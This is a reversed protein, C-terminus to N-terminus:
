KDDGVDFDKSINFINKFPRIFWKEFYKKLQDFDEYIPKNEFYECPEENEITKIWMGYTSLGKDDNMGTAQIPKINGDTHMKSSLEILDKYGKINNKELEKEAQLHIKALNKYINVQAPTDTPFNNKYEGYFNELFIYDDISFKGWVHNLRKLEEVDFVNDVVDVPSIIEKTSLSPSSAEFQSDDFTLDRYQRMGLNKMYMKFVHGERNDAETSSAFWLDYLFPKDLMRLAARVKTFNVDPDNVDVFDWMCQKCTHVKGTHKMFHASSSYYDTLKKNEGCCNCTQMTVKM